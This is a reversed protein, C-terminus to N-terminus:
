LREKLWTSVDTDLGRWAGPSSVKVVLIADSDDMIQLLSDRVGQATLASDVFWTSDVPHCWSGLEKIAKYLDSYDKGPRNLDYSICYIM